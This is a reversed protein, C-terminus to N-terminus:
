SVGQAARYSNVDSLNGAKWMPVTAKLLMTVTTVFESDHLDEGFLENIRKWRYRVTQPHVGLRAAIAPASDRSELWALMTESLIERSNRSEALLPVLLEQALRRRLVPEAHLWLQTAHDDCRIIPRPPIVGVRVLDLTRRAWRDAVAGQTAPLPPSVAVRLGPAAGAVQRATAAAREASCIVLAPKTSRQILVDPEVRLDPFRGHYSVRMVVIEAPLTWGASEADAALETRRAASEPADALLAEVLQIRSADDHSASGQLCLAHGRIVERDLHDIYVLLADGVRGLFAADLQHDTAIQRTLRWSDRTAIRLARRIPELDRGDEAASFGLDGFLRAVGAEPEVHGLLFDLFQNTAATVAEAIVQHQEGHDADSYASVQAGIDSVVQTVLDPIAARAAAVLTQLNPPPPFDVWLAGIADVWSAAPAM